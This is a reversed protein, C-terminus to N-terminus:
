CGPESTLPLNTHGTLPRHRLGWYTEAWLGRSVGAADWHGASVFGADGEGFHGSYSAQDRWESQVQGLPKGAGGRCGGREMGVERGREREGEREREREREREPM